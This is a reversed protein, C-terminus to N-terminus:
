QRWIKLSSHFKCLGKSNVEFPENFYTCMLYDATTTGDSYDCDICSAGEPLYGINYSKLRSIKKSM